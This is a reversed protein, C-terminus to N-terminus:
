DNPIIKKKDKAEYKVANENIWESLKGKQELKLLKELFKNKSENKISEYGKLMAKIGSEQTVLEDAKGNDIRTLTMGAIYNMLLDMGYIFSKDNLVDNTFEPRIEIHTYPAGSVWRFVFKNAADRVERNTALPTNIMWKAVTVVSDKYPEYDEIKKLQYNVPIKIEQGFTCIMLLSAWIIVTLKKM